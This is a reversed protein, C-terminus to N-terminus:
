PCDTPPLSPSLFRILASVALCVFSPVCLARLGTMIGADRRSQLPVRVRPVRRMRREGGNRASAPCGNSTAALLAFASRLGARLAAPPVFQVAPTCSAM